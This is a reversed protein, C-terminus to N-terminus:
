KSTADAKVAKRVRIGEETGRQLALDRVYHAIAWIDREPLAGKWMPMATGPIGVSITEYLSSVEIGRRITDFSFDPPLLKIKLECRGQRCIQNVDEGCDSETECSPDGEIPRSYNAPKAEPLWVQPRLRGVPAKGFLKRLENIGAVSEYAPHCSHCTASAHYVAKGREVANGEDGAWPDKGAVIQEGVVMDSDRWGEDEPSFTKIYQVIASLRSDSIPWGAMATGNLGSKIVLILAADQPLEGAATGAFKFSATRFDRPPIELKASAPGRGDGNAGHCAVCYFHYALKGENLTKLDVEVGGLTQSETLPEDPQDACAAFVSFFLLLTWQVIKM